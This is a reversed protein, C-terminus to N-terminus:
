MVENTRAMPGHEVLCRVAIAVPGPIPRNGNEWGSITQWGHKGMQLAEAMQHQTLGLANRASRFDAPTM